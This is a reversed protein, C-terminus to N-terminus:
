NKISPHFGRIEPKSNVPGVPQQQLEAASRPSAGWIQPLFSSIVSPLFALLALLVVGGGEGRGWELDPDAM